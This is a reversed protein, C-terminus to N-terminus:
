GALASPHLLRAARARRVTVCPQGTRIIYEVLRNDAAVGCRISRGERSSRPSRQLPRPRRTFILSRILLFLSHSTDTSAAASSSEASGRHEATARTRSVPHAARGSDRRSGLMLGRAGAPPPARHRHRSAVDSMDSAWGSVFMTPLDLCHTSRHAGRWGRPHRPLPPCALTHLSRAHTISRNPMTADCPSEYKDYNQTKKYVKGCCSDPTTHSEM